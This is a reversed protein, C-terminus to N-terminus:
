TILTLEWTVNVDQQIDKPTHKRKNNEYKPAVIGAISGITAQRQSKVKDKLSCTHDNSFSRVRFITIKNM